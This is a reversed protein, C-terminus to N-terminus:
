FICYELVDSGRLLVCFYIEIKEHVSDPLIVASGMDSWTGLQDMIHV